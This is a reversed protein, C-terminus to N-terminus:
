KRERSGITEINGSQFERWDRGRSMALSRRYMSEWNQTLYKDLVQYRERRARYTSYFSKSLMMMEAWNLATPNWSHFWMKLVNGGMTLSHALTLMSALKLDRKVLRKEKLSQREAFTSLFYYGRVLVEVVFPVLSMTVFHEMTYGHKYMYRSLDTWAVKEGSGGLVFPSKGQVLQLVGLFPAPLGTKDGQSSCDTLLHAFVKLIATLISNQETYSQSRDIVQLVGRRDVVTMTKRLIDLTGFIFGLLPDHGFTMLRHQDWKLGKIEEGGQRQLIRRDPVDYPAKDLTEGPGLVGREELWKQVGELKGHTADELGKSKDKLWKTVKSGGYKRDGLLTSGEPTAVVFVDVLVAAVASLGVVGYDWPHWTLDGFKANYKTEIEAVQNPSLLQTIPDVSVDIRHKALYEDVRQQYTDWDDEFDLPEIPTFEPLSQQIQGLEEESLGVYPKADDLVLSDRDVGLQGCLRGM